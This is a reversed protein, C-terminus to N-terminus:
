SEPVLGGQNTSRVHAGSSQELSHCAPLHKRARVYDDHAEQLLSMGLRLRRVDEARIMARNLRGAKAVGDPGSGLGLGGLKWSQQM